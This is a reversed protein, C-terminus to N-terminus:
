HELVQESFKRVKAKVGAMLKQVTEKTVKESARKWKAKFSTIDQAVSGIKKCIRKSIAWYVEIPRLEPVNPPNLLKPVVDIGNAEYWELTSKSYHCSALDPWFLPPLRHKRYLPLLRKQLCEKIYLDSNMNASTVFSPSRLGCSCIAQWVMFKKAFKDCKQIKFKKNVDCGKIQSYFQQGPLQNFDAKVYTEDDMLVCNSFNKLKHRYLKRSILIARNNKKTDRNPVKVMKHSKYGYKKKIKFVNRHCTGYKLGLDRLSLGPNQTLAKIIKKERNVDGSGVKRGIGHSRNITGSDRLRKITRLATSKSSGAAGAILSASWTPNQLFIEIIKQRQNQESM